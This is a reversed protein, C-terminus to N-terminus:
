RRCDPPSAVPEALSRFGFRLAEFESRWGKDGCSSEKGEKPSGIGRSGSQLASSNNKVLLVTLIVCKRPCDVTEPTDLEFSVKFTESPHDVIEVNISFSPASFAFFYPQPHFQVM